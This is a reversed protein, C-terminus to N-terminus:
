KQWALKKGLSRKLQIHILEPGSVVYSHRQTALKSQQIESVTKRTQSAPPDAGERFHWLQLSKHKAYKIQFKQYKM